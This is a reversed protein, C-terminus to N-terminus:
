ISEGDLRPDKDEWYEAQCYPCQGDCKGLNHMALLLEQDEMQERADDAADGM